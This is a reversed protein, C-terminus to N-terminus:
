GKILMIGIVKKYPRPNKYVYDEFMDEPELDEVMSLEWKYQEADWKDIQWFWEGNPKLARRAKLYYSGDRQVHEGGECTDTLWYLEVWCVRYLKPLKM